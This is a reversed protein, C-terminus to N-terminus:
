NRSTPTLSELAAAIQEALHSAIEAVAAPEIDEAVARLVDTDAALNAAGEADTAAQSAREAYDDVSSVQGVEYIGERDAQDACQEAITAAGRAIRALYEYVREVEEALDAATRSHLDDPNPPAPTHSM